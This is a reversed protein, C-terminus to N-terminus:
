FSKIEIGKRPVIGGKHLVMMPFDLAQVSEGFRGGTHADASANGSAFALFVYFAPATRVPSFRDITRGLSDIIAVYTAKAASFDPFITLATLMRQEVSFSDVLKCCM